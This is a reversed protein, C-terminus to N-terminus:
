YEGTHIIIRDNAYDALIDRAGMDRATNKIARDVPSHHLEHYFIIQGENDEARELGNRNAFNLWVRLADSEGQSTEETAQAIAERIIRRLQRKLLKVKLEKANFSIVWNQM